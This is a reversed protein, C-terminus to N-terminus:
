HPYAKLNSFGLWAWDREREAQQRYTIHLSEAVAGVDHRNAMIIISEGEIAFLGGILHKRTSAANTM